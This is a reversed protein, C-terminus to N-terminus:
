WRRGYDPRRGARPRDLDPFVDIPLTATTVGGYILVTLSLVVVVFRYRLACRVIANLM